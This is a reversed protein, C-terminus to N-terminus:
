SCFLQRQLVLDMQFAETVKRFLLCRPVSRSLLKRVLMKMKKCILDWNVSIKKVIHLCLVWQINKLCWFDICKSLLTIIELVNWYRIYKKWHKYLGSVWICIAGEIYEFCERIRVKLFSNGFNFNSLDLDLVCCVFLWITGIISIHKYYISLLFM